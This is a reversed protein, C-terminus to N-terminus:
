IEKNERFPPRDLYRFEGGCINNKKKISWLAKGNSIVKVDNIFSVIGNAM